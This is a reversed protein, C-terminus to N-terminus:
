VAIEVGHLPFLFIHKGENKLADYQEVTQLKEM